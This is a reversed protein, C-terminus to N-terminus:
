VSVWQVGDWRRLLKGDDTCIGDAINRQLIEMLGTNGAAGRRVFDLATQSRPKKAWLLPDLGGSLSELAM